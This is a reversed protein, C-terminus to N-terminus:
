RKMYIASDVAPGGWAMRALLRVAEEDAMFRRVRLSDIALGPTSMGRPYVGLLMELRQHRAEVTMMTVTRGSEGRGMRRTSMGSRRGVSDRLWVNASLPANADASDVTFRYSVEYSGPRLDEVRIRLRATDAVRRVGIRDRLFVTDAFRERALGAITDGMAVRRRWSESQSRLMGGAVEVVDDSLRASKRKAFNGITYQVDESTYGYKAFVPEYINMSDVRMGRQTVYSNVLYVDRFIEALEGDPIIRPGGCSALFFSLFLLSIHRM